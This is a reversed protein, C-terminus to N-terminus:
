IEEGKFLVYHTREFPAVGVGSNAGDREALFVPQKILERTRRSRAAAMWFRSPVALSLPRLGCLHSASLGRAFSGVQGLLRISSNNGKAGLNM